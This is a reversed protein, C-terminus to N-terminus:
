REHLLFNLQTDESTKRNGEIIRPGTGGCALLPVVAVSITVFTIKTGLRVLDVPNDSTFVGQFVFVPTKLLGSNSPANEGGTLGVPTRNFRVLCPQHSNM